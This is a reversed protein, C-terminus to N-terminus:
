RQERHAHLELRSAGGEVVTFQKEAIRYGDLAAKAHWTGLPLRRNTIVTRGTVPGHDVTTEWVYEVEGGRSRAFEVVLSGGLDDQAYLAVVVRGAPERAVWEISCLRTADLIIEGRVPMYESEGGYPDLILQWRGVPLPDDDLLAGGLSFEPYRFRMGTPTALSARFLLQTGTPDFLRAQLGVAPIVPYRPYTIHVGYRNAFLPTNAYRAYRGFRANGFPFWPVPAVVQINVKGSKILHLMRNELFIGNQPQADSPYLSTFALLNLM